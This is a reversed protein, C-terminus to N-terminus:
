TSFDQIRVTPKSQETSGTRPGPALLPEHQVMIMRRMSRKRYWLFLVLGGAILGIFAIVLLVVAALSGVGTPDPAVDLLITQFM